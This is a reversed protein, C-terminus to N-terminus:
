GAAYRPAGSFAAGLGDNLDSVPICTDHCLILGPRSDALQLPLRLWFHVLHNKVARLGRIVGQAPRGTDAVKDHAARWYDANGEWDIDDLFLGTVERDYIERLGTGALRYRFRRPGTVISILSVHPLLRPFDVPSIASRGPMALEGCRQAWYDYLQRQEPIVLQARFAARSADLAM